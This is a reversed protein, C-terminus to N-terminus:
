TAVPLQYHTMCKELISLFARFHLLPVIEEDCRCSDDQILMNLKNELANIPFNFAENYKSHNKELELNL